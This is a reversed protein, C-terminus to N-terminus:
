HTKVPVINISWKVFKKMADTGENSISGLYM